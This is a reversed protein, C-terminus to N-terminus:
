MLLMLTGCVSCALSLPLRLGRSQGGTFTQVNISGNAGGTQMPLAFRGTGIDLTSGGTELSVVKGSIAVGAAGPSLIVGDVVAFISDVEVDFGDLNIDSSLTSQPILLPITSSGM